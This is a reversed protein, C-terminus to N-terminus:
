GSPHREDAPVPPSNEAKLRHRPAARSEIPGGRRRHPRARPRHRRRRAALHHTTARRRRRPPAAGRLQPATPRHGPARHADHGPAERDDCLDVLADIFDPATRLEDMLAAFDIMTVGAPPPPACAASRSTPRPSGTPICRERVRPAPVRPPRPEAGRRRANRAPPRAAEWADNWALVDNAPGVVFAPTTGLGELLATVTPGGRPGAPPCSPVAGREPQGDGAHVAAPTARRRPATRRGARRDREALARTDRGQELRVLYDISVGALTAVEERRLGPTRRRGSDPLGVDGPRLQERRARLFEAVTTVGGAHRLVRRIVRAGGTGPDARGERVTARPRISRGHGGCGCRTESGKAGPRQATSVLWEEIPKVMRWRPTDLTRPRKVRKSASTTMPSVSSVVVTLAVMSTADISVALASRSAWTSDGSMMSTALRGVM